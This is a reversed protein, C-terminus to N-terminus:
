TFLYYIIKILILFNIIKSFFKLQGDYNIENENENIFSDEDDNKSRNNNLINIKRM